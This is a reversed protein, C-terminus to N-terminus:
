KTVKLLDSVFQRYITAENYATSAMNYYLSANEFNGKQKADEANDGYMDGRKESMESFREYQKRLEELTM